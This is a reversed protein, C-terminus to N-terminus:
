VVATTRAVAPKEMAWDLALQMDKPRLILLPPVYKMLGFEWADKEKTLPKLEQEPVTVGTKCNGM